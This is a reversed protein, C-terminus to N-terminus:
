LKFKGDKALRPIDVWEIKINGYKILIEMIYKDDEDELHTGHNKACILNKVGEQYLSKICDLCPPGTIYAKGGDPRLSCNALANREAHVMWKYKDPRTNPLIEDPMGVPFSNYGVGLIRNQNDTIICGHKTQSDCSRTSALFSMSIFYENWSPKDVQQRSASTKKIYESSGSSLNM